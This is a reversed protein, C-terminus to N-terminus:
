LVWAGQGAMINSTTQSARRRCRGPGRARHGRYSWTRPPTGMSEHYSSGACFSIGSQAGFCWITLSQSSISFQDSGTKHIQESLSFAQPADPLRTSTDLLFDERRAVHAVPTSSIRRVPRSFVSASLAGFISLLTRMGSLCRPRWSERKFKRSCHLLSIRRSRSCWSYFIGLSLFRGDM